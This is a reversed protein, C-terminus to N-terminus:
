LGMLKEISLSHGKKAFYDVIKRAHTKNPICLNVLRWKSVNQQTTGAIKALNAQRREDDGGALSLAAELEGNLDTGNIMRRLM